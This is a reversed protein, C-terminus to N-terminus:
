SVPPARGPPLLFSPTSTRNQSPEGVVFLVRAVPLEILPAADVGIASGQALLEIPCGGKSAPQHPAGDADTDPACSSTGSQWAHIARHWDPRVAAANLALMLAPLLAGLIQFQRGLRPPHRNSKTM